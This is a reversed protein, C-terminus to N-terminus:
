SKKLVDNLETLFESFYFELHSDGSETREEACQWRLHLCPRAKTVLDQIAPCFGQM